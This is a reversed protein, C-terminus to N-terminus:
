RRRRVGRILPRGIPLDKQIRRNHKWYAGESAWGPTYRLFAPTHLVSYVITRGIKVIISIIIGM